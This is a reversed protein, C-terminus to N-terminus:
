RRYYPWWGWPYPYPYGWSDWYPDRQVPKEVPWLHIDLVQLRLYPFPDQGKETASSALLRGAVTIKREKAYVEPDLFGHYELILRGQSLDKSKPERGLGLPAQLALMRSRDAANTVELVYGGLIVTRDINVAADAILAPFPIDPLAQEEVAAPMVSCATFLLAAMIWFCYARNKM